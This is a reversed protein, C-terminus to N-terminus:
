QLLRRCMQLLHQCWAPSVHVWFVAKLLKMGKDNAPLSDTRYLLAFAVPALIWALVITPVLLLRTM